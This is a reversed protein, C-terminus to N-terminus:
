RWRRIRLIHGPPPSGSPIMSVFLADGWTWAYYDNLLGDGTVYTNTSFDGSYFSDPEPNLFYKKLSNTALAPLHYGTSAAMHWGEVQEHNGNIYLTPANASALNFFQYQYSYNTDAASQSTVSDM